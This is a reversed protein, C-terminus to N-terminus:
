KRSRYKTKRMHKKNGLSNIQKRYKRTRRNNHVRRGGVAAGAGANNRRVKENFKELYKQYETTEVFGQIQAPYLLAKCEPYMLCRGFSPLGFELNRQKIFGRLTDQTVREKYGNNYTIELIPNGETASDGMFNMENEPGEVVRTPTM